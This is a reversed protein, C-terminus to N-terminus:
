IAIVKTAKSKGFTVMGRTVKAAYFTMVIPASKYAVLHLACPLCYAEKIIHCSSKM